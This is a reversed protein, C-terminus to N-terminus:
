VERVKAFEDPEFMLILKNGPLMRFAPYFKSRSGAPREKGTVFDGIGGIASWIANPTDFLLSMVPIPARFITHEWEQFNILFGVERRTRNILRFMLRHGASKQWDAEGDDDWDARGAMTALMLVLVFRMEMATSRIQGRKYDLFDNFDMRQIARDHKFKNKYAEFMRRARVENVKYAFGTRNSLGFTAVHMGLKALGPVVVNALWSLFDQDGEKGLDTYVAKWKGEVMSNRTPSYRLSSLRADAMGPLWTKFGMAANGALTNYVSSLDDKNLQGKVATASGIVINRFETYAQINTVNGEADTIGEIFLKGNDLLKTSEYLSKVDDAVLRNSQGKETDHTSKYMRVFEGNVYAWNKMMSIGINNNVAQESKRMGIFATDWKLWRESWRAAMNKKKVDVYGPSFEFLYSLARYKDLAAKGELGSGERQTQYMQKKNYYFGNNGEFYANSTIQGWNGAWLLPSFSLEIASQASKLAGVLKVAWKPVDQIKVGYVHYDVFKDYLKVPDIDQGTVRSWIGSVRKKKKGNDAILQHGSEVMLDRIAELHPEVENKLYHYNYAMESYILLSKGLDRVKMGRRISGKADKIPNIFFRPLTNRPKGTLPDVEGDDYMEGLGTDDQRVRFISSVSERLDTLKFTGQSMMGIIDQRIYPLFNAPVSDSGRLGLMDNLERMSDLWYNYFNLLEPQAAIKKYGESQYEEGLNDRVEYYLWWKKTTKVGEISNQAKWRDVEQESATPNTAKYIALNRKYDEKANKKLTIHSDIWEINNSERANEFAEYFEKTHKSWLNETKPNIFMEYVSPLTIGMRKAAVQLQKKHTEIEHFREQLKLRKFNQAKDLHQRLKRYPIGVQEGLTRFMKAWYGPPTFDEMANYDDRDWERMTRKEQLQDLIRRSDMALREVNQLYENYVEPSVNSELEEIIYPSSEIINHYAQLDNIKKTLESLTLYDPNPMGGIEPDDVNVLTNYRDDDKLSELMTELGQFLYMFDQDLVLREYAEQNREIIAALKTYEESGYSLKALAKKDNSILHDLRRLQKNLKDERVPNKLTIQEGIPIHRIFQDPKDRLVMKGDKGRVYEAGMDVLKINDTLTDFDKQLVRPKTEFRVHIPVIRSVKTGVSGYFHEMTQNLRSLQTSFGEMKYNPIWNKDIVRNTHPEIKTYGPMHTKYDLVGHTNNSFMVLLDVRGGYDELPNLIFQEPLIVARGDPDITEQIRSLDRMIKHVGAKLALFSKQNIGLEKQIQAETKADVPKGDVESLPVLNKYEGLELYLAMLDEAGRHVVEGGRAKIINNVRKSMKRGEELGVSKLFAKLIPDTTRGTSILHQDLFYREVTEGKKLGLDNAVKKPLDEYAVEKTSVMENTQRMARARDIPNEIKGIRDVQKAILIDRLEEYGFRKVECPM